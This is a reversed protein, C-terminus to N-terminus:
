FGIDLIFKVTWDNSGQTWGHGVGLDVSVPEGGYDAVLFTEQAQQSGPQFHNIPGLDAYHEVAVTWKSSLIYGLRAAPEFNPTQDNGSLAIGLIPNVVFEWPASRWGIMPRMEMNYRNPDYTSKYYGVEFNMGYFFDRDAAHPSVFLSRLKVSGVQFHGGASLEYPIYAGIEWWDALGYAFEPTGNFAHHPAVGGPFDPMKSGELVYNGHLQLSFEGPDNIEANYVQIEDAAKSPQTLLLSIASAVIAFISGNGVKMIKAGRMIM